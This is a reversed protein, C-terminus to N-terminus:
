GANRDTDPELNLNIQWKMEAKQLSIVINNKKGMQWKRFTYWFFLFFLEKQRSNEFPGLRANIQRAFKSVGDNKLSIKKTILRGGM